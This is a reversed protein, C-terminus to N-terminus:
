IKHDGGRFPVDKRPVTHKPMNQTLISRPAKATALQLFGFFAVYAFFLISQTRQTNRTCANRIKTKQNCQLGHMWQTVQSACQFSCTAHLDIFISKLIPKWAAMRLAVSAVCAPWAVCNVFRLSHLARCSFRLPRLSLIPQTRQMKRYKSQTALRADM